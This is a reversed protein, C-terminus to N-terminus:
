QGPSWGAPLGIETGVKESRTPGASVVPRRTALMSACDRARDTRKTPWESPQRTEVSWATITGATTAEVVRLGLMKQGLLRRRQTDPIM